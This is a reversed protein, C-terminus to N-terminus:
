LIGAKNVILLIHSLERAEVVAPIPTDNALHSLKNALFIQPIKAGTTLPAPSGIKSRPGLVNTRETTLM